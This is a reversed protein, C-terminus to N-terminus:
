TRSRLRGREAAPVFKFMDDFFVLEAAGLEFVGLRELLGNEWSNVAAAHEAEQASSLAIIRYALTIHFRYSDHDPFRVGGAVAVEERYSQLAATTTEDAPQLNIMLNAGRSLGVPQMRLQAPPQVNALREIFFEDSEVLSVDLSLHRSWREPRRTQDCLLEMVTMHLSEPPLLTYHRGPPHAALQQQVWLAATYPPTGPHCFCILTNGPFLRPSGDAYFKRGVEATYLTEPM